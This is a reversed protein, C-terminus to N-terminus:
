FLNAPTKKYLIGTLCFHYDYLNKFGIILSNLFYVIERMKYLQFIFCRIIPFWRTKEHIRCLYVLSKNLVSLM